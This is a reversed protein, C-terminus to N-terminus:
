SALGLRRETAAVIDALHARMKKAATGVWIKVLLEDFTMSTYIDGAIFFFQGAPVAKSTVVRRGTLYSYDVLAGTM